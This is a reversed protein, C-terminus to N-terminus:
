IIVKITDILYLGRSLEVTACGGKLAVTSHLRGDPTHIDISDKSPSSIHVLCGDVQVHTRATNDLVADNVGSRDIVIEQEPAFESGAYAADISQVSWGYRGDSFNALTISRNHWANGHTSIKRVGDALNANPSTIFRGTALDRLYFNYTLSQSPTESDSGSEWTLTLAGDEGFTHSLGSPPLPVTNAAPTNNRALVAIRRDGEFGQYHGNCNGNIIIDQRGTGFFDATEVSGESVGPLDTEALTFNGAGDNLFVSTRSVNGQTMNWGTLIIDTYGDNNWDVLRLPRTTNDFLYESFEQGPVFQGEHNNFYVTVTKGGEAATTNWAEGVITGGIVIDLWGDGDLDACAMAGRTGKPTVGSEGRNLRGTGDNWFIETFVGQYKNSLVWLDPAGDNNFDGCLINPDSMGSPLTFLGRTGSAFTGDPRQFYFSQSSGNGVFCYDPLGDCNFDAIACAPATQSQNAIRNVTLNGKGDNILVANYCDWFDWGAQILDVDGDGDLDSADFNGMFMRPLAQTAAFHGNGMNIRVGGHRVQFSEGGSFVIDPQLDENLDVAVATGMKFGDSASLYDIIDGRDYTDAVSDAPTSVNHRVTSPLHAYAEELGAADKVKASVTPGNTGWTNHSGNQNRSIEGRECWNDKVTYYDTGEDTYLDFQSHRMDWMVPNTLPDGVDEIRNGIISSNPQSSLTYIAGSDRMQNSFSHIYNALIHNDHMVNPDKVWGWGMNIASYPTDFIENHSITVNSAYGVSIALCGWDEVAPHAIYNNDILINDCVERKDEPNWPTHAEFDRDGFYGALIGNGGIDNFVSGRVVAGNVGTVFDLGTSGLHEFRCDEFAIGSTNSISVAAAPRGVWAVNNAYQTQETYADWLFLGAQLAVHGAEAPRMWTSHSFTIGRFAVNCVPSDKTGEISVLTELAPVRAIINGSNEGAAPWYYLKGAAADSYWERPRNLLEIANSLKFHHNSFSNIDARLIPWPRKFEIEAETDGFRMTSRGDATDISKVRLINMAWDQIITTEVEGPRAFSYPIAPVVLGRSDDTRSIIRPLTIDDHTSAKPVRNGNVWMQRYQLATPAVDAELVRGAAVEPLGAVSGATRWNDVAVAGSLVPSEGPAAEITLSSGPRTFAAQSIVAPSALSYIGGGLIFHFERDASAGERAAIELARGLTAVPATSTGAAADSGTTSVYINYTDPSAASASFALLALGLTIKRNIKM